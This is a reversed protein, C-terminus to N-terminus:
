LRDLVHFFKQYQPRDGVVRGEVEIWAHSDLPVHRCGIVIQADIGNRRLLYSSAWSRQLCLVDKPYWVCAEAVAQVIRAEPQRSRRGARPFKRALAHVTSFGAIVGILDFLALAIFSQTILLVM